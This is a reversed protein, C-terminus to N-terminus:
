SRLSTYTGPLTPGYPRLSGYGGLGYKAITPEADTVLLLDNQGLEKKVVKVM